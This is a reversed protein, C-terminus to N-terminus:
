YVVEVKVKSKGELESVPIFNGEIRKGDVILAKSRAGENPLKGSVVEVKVNRYLRTMKFGNWDKPICPDIIIGDYDPRFGLIYQTAAVYMWSATGSLWSGVGMKDKEHCPAVMSSAYVYPEIMCKDANENRMTPLERHYLSYADENRGLITEAIIAWTSAHFFIGGNERVGAKLGFYSKNKIDIGSSAPAHSVVGM